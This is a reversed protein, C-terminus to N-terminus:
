NHRRIIVYNNILFLPIDLNLIMRWDGLLLNTNFVSLLKLTQAMTLTM